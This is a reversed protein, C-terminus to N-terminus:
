KGAQEWMHEEATLVHGAATAQPQSNVPRRRHGRVAQHLDLYQERDLWLINTVAQIQAQPVKERCVPCSSQARAKVAEGRRAEIQMKM